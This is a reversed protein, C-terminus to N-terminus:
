NLEKANYRCQYQMINGDARARTNIKEAEHARVCMRHAQHETHPVYIFENRIRYPTQLILICYPTSFLTSSRRTPDRRSLIIHSV